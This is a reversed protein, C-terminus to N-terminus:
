DKEMEIMFQEEATEKLTKQVRELTDRGIFSNVEPINVTIKKGYMLETHISEGFPKHGPAEKWECWVLDKKFQGKSVLLYNDLISDLVEIDEGKALLKNKLSILKRRITSIETSM